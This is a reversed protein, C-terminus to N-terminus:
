LCRTFPSSIVQIEFKGIKKILEGTKVAQDFGRLSLHTDLKYDFERKQYEDSQEFDDLREAHRVVILYSEM